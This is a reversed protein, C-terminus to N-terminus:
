EGWTRSFKSVAYLTRDEMPALALLNEWYWIISDRHYSSFPSYYVDGVHKSKQLFSGRAPPLSAEKGAHILEFISKLQGVGTLQVM